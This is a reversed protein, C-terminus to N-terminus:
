IADAFTRHVQSDESRLYSGENKNEGAVKEREREEGEGWQRRETDERSEKREKGKLTVYELPHSHNFQKSQPKLIFLCAM